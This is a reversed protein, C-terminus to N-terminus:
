FKRSGKIGECSMLIAVNGPKLVGIGPLAGKVREQMSSAMVFEVPITVLDKASKCLIKTQRMAALGSVMSLVM